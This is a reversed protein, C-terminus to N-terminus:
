GFVEIGDLLRDHEEVSWKANTIFKCPEILDAGQVKKGKKIM